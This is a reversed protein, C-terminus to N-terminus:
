MKVIQQGQQALRPAIQLTVTKGGLQLTPAVARIGPAARVVKIGGQTQMSQTGAAQSVMIIQQGGPRGLPQGAKNTLVFTGGTGGGAVSKVM